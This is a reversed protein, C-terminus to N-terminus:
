YLKIKGRGFDWVASNNATSYNIILCIYLAICINFSDSYASFYSSTISQGFNSKEEKRDTGRVVLSRIM